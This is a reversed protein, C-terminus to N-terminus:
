SPPCHAGAEIWARMIAVFQANTGPPPTRGPGPSWAWLILGDTTVHDLLGAMDRGGNRAPDKIQQCIEPLSRGQFAMQTPALAWHSNGPVRAPQFNEAGHCAGCLLGPM